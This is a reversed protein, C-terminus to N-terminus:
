PIHAHPLIPYLVCLLSCNNLSTRVLELGAIPEDVDPLEGIWRIVGYIPPDNVEVMSNIELLYHGPLEEENEEKEEEEEDLEEEEEEMDVTKNGEFHKEKKKKHDELDISSLM